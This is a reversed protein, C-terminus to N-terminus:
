VPIVQFPPIQSLFPTSGKAEVPVGWSHLSWLMNSLLFIML